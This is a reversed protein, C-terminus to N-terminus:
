VNFLFTIVDGDKVIYNKGELRLIGKKKAEALSRCNVLDGFGIVEARIFGREMDSHIKGAAKVAETGNRISWARVESSATTFFSVLGLLEYSLRIIRDVAPEKIGYESRLEAAAEDDLRSLEMELEGCIVTVRCNQRSYRSNLDETMAEVQPLQDEGINVAILLPKESLLQYGSLYKTEESTLDLERVPIEKELSSKIRNVIEQERLLAAREPPKAGKLSVEIRDLRRELLTLDSFALELNINAIDREVDLSGEMHPLSDDKFARVVCILANVNGLKALLQGGIGKDLAMDKVSAGVDTYTASVPVVKNPKLKDSLVALRPEPVRATGIHAPYDASYKGTDVEGGTLCNFVTTGGSKSLGIIGIDVSM